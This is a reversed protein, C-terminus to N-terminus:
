SEIVSIKALSFTALSYVEIINIVTESKMSLRTYSYKNEHVLIKWYWYVILRRKGDCVAIQPQNPNLLTFKNLFDLSNQKVYKLFGTVSTEPLAEWVHYYGRIKSRYDFHTLQCIQFACNRMHNINLIHSMDFRIFCEVFNNFKAYLLASVFNRKGTCDSLLQKLRHLNWLSLNREFSTNIPFIVPFDRSVICVNTTLSFAWFWIQMFWQFHKMRMIGAGLNLRQFNFLCFIITM